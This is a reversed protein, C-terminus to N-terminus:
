KLPLSSLAKWKTLTIAKPRHEFRRKLGNELELEYYNRDCIPPFNDEFQKYDLVVPVIYFKDYAYCNSSDRCKMVVSKGKTLNRGEFYEVRLGNKFTVCRNTDLFCKMNVCETPYFFDHFGLPKDESHSRDYNFNYASLFLFGKISKHLSTDTQGHSIFLGGILSFFMVLKKM